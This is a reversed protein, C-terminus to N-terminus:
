REPGTGLVFLLALLVIEAVLAFGAVLAFQSEGTVVFLVASIVGALGTPISMILWRVVITKRRTALVLPAMHVM